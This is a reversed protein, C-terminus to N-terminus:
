DFKVKFFGFMTIYIYISWALLYHTVLIKIIPIKTHLKENQPAKLKYQSQSNIKVLLTPPIPNSIFSISL